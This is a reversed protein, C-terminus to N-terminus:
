PHPRGWHDSHIRKPELNVQQAHALLVDVQRIQGQIKAPTNPYLLLLLLWGLIFYEWFHVEGRILLYGVWGSLSALM